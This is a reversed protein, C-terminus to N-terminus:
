RATLSSHGDSRLLRQITSQSFHLPCPLPQYCVCVGSETEPCACIVWHPLFQHSFVTLNVKHQNAIIIVQIQLTKVINQNYKPSQWSKWKAMTWMTSLNLKSPVAMKWITNLHLRQSVTMKWMTCAWMLNKKLVAIKWMTSLNLKPSMSMKWMTSLNLQPSM